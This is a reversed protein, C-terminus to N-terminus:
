VVAEQPESHNNIPTITAENRFKLMNTTDIIIFCISFEIIFGYILILLIFLETKYNKYSELIIPILFLSCIIIVCFLLMMRKFKDEM